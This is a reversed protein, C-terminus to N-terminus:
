TKHPPSFGEREIISDEPLPATAVPFKRPWKIGGDPRYASTKRLSKMNVLKKEEGTAAVNPPLTVASPPATSPHRSNESENRRKLRGGPM